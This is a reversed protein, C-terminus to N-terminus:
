DVAKMDRRQYRRKGNSARPKRVAAAMPEKARAVPEAINRAILSRAIDDDVDRVDQTVRYRIKM